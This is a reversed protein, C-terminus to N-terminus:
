NPVAVTTKKSESLSFYEIRFSFGAVSILCNKFCIRFKFFFTQPKSSLLLDKRFFFFLLKVHIQGYKNIGPVNSPERLFYSDVALLAYM